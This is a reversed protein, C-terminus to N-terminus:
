AESQFLSPIKKNFLTAQEFHYAMQLVKADDMFAGLMQLGLPKQETTFGAPISIAPLGALNASITYIDQLYAQLPEQVSGLPLAPVPTTPMAIIDCSCFAQKFKQVVLSRVKQAKKHYADKYGSSLVYTGLLIRNKVEAGFGEQKSLEYVESLDTAKESRLGYRIGDYRALNTSAEATAIIYYVAISYKLIDLDIEVITVGLSKLIEISEEFNKKIEPTLSELFHWPVGIKMGKIPKKILERYPEAKAKLNTSDRECPQSLTEMVFATDEVSTALPGIQDLSSGFAVLGYRSVRGYSPKFGVTGTLAAPQRISGGTDSGLALPCLRAAVAAASGGSSGGPSCNLDWPNKSNQFASNETFSGMAFEDLNTKGLILADDEELLRTVTADFVARYNELFRSGCTSIEGHIHINDKIAVPVGAMKGLPKGEKKKKDLADAKELARKSLVSLFAGTKEDHNEIRKLFYEVISRASTEGKVFLNHIELASLDYM